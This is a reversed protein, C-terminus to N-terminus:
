AAVQLKGRLVSGFAAERMDLSAAVGPKARPDCDSAGHRRAELATHPSEEAALLHAADPLPQRSVQAIVGGDLCADYRGLRKATLKVIIMVAETKAASASVAMGCRALVRDPRKVTDLM